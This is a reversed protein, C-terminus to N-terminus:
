VIFIIYGDHKQIENEHLDHKVLTALLRQPKRPHRTYVDPQHYTKCLDLVLNNLSITSSGTKLATKRGLQTDDFTLVIGASKSDEEKCRYELLNVPVYTSSIEGTDLDDYHFRRGEYGQERCALTKFKIYYGRVTQLTKTVRKSFEEQILPTDVAGNFLEYIEICLEMYEELSKILVEWEEM